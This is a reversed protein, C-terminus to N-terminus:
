DGLLMSFKREVIAKTYKQEVEKTVLITLKDLSRTLAVYLLHKTRNEEKREQFLYPALDTTLIFLCKKDELGKIIEISRVLLTDTKKIARVNSIASLMQAYKQKPLNDFAENMIWKKVIDAANDGRYEDIMCETIYFAARHLDNDNKIKHWKEVMARYVENMVNEFRNEGMENEHTSFRENKKSIYKLGYDGNDIFRNLDTLEAEYVVDVSGPVAVEDAVQKEVDKALTNSINLHKQPCRHCEPIYNVDISDKIIIDFQGLGKVDQKPDGYMIIPIGARDLAELVFRVDENIDQAEDVYICACYGTFREIIRQRILKKAKNDSSKQCAVFRAKEPIKVVHLIGSEDLEKLRINKYVDNSPLDVSSIQRYQKNYLFYYYPFILEHYLFAHITSVKINEPITGLRKEVKKSINEAAKNTFAVCFICKGDPVPFRTILEAMKTTKGAGAGAVNIQM